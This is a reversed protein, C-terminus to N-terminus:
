TERQARARSAQRTVGTINVRFRAMELTVNFHRAIADIDMRRGVARLLTPRPLLLTGGLNTAEEEQTPSCTRFPVGAVERVESLEHGLLVHSWEHAVDSNQRQDSRLPNFVIVSGNVDFTAASFAFAQLRELEELREMSVLDDASVVDVGNQRAAQFIPMPDLPKLGLERRVEAAKNEAETRFGRRLTM